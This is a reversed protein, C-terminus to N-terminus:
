KKVVRMLDELYDTQLAQIELLKQNQNILLHDIKENLLQIELEAKLNIMYDHENRERDKQEQRNQSMIIIPAQIAAICSLVLNLLIFPYPDIAPSILHSVNLAIWIVIFALFSIIFGWSGALAAMNDAIRDARNEKGEQIPRIEGSLIKNKALANLVDKDIEALEGKERSLLSALYKRRFLNLEELSIYDEKSFDSNESKIMDFIGQRIMDGQIAAGEMIPIKSIFSIQPM